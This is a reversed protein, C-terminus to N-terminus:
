GRQGYCVRCRQGSILDSKVAQRCCSKASPVLRISADGGKVRRKVELVWSVALTAPQATRGWEYDIRLIDQALGGSTVTLHLWDVSGPESSPLDGVVEALAIANPGYVQRFDWILDTALILAIVGGAGM